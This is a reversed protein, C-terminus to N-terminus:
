GKIGSGLVGVLKALVAYIVARNRILARLPWWAMMALLLMVTYHMLGTVPVKEVM